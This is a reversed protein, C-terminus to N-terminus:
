CRFWLFTPWDHFVFWRFVWLMKRVTLSIRLVQLILASFLLFEFQRIFFDPQSYPPLPSFICTFATFGMREGGRLRGFSETALQGGPVSGETLARDAPLATHKRRNQNSRFRENGTCPQQQVARLQSHCSVGLAWLELQFHWLTM